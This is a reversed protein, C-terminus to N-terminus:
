NDQHRAKAYSFAIGSNFGPGQLVPPPQMQTTNWPPTAFSGKKDSFTMKGSVAVSIVEDSHIHTSFSHGKPIKYRLAECPSFDINAIGVGSRDYKFEM